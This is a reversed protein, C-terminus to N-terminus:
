EKEYGRYLLFGGATLYLLGSIGNIQFAYSINQPMDAIVLTILIMMGIFSIVSGAFYEIHLDYGNEETGEDLRDDEVSHTRNSDGENTQNKNSQM